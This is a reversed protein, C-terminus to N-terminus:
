WAKCCLAISKLPVVCSQRQEALLNFLKSLIGFGDQSYFSLKDQPHNKEFTRLLEGLARDVASVANNPWAGKGQSGFVKEIDRLSKGIRARNPADCKASANSSLNTEYDVARALMRAKLKKARKKMAKLREKSEITKPDREDKAADLIYKLNCIHLEERIFSVVNIM